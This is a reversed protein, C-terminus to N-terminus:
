FTICFKSLEYNHQLTGKKKQEMIVLCKKSKYVGPLMLDTSKKM